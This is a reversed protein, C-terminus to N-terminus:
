KGQFNKAVFDWNVRNWFADLYKAKENRYDFLLYSM